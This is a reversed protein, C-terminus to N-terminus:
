SSNSLGLFYCLEHVELMLMEQTKSNSLFPKSSETQVARFPNRLLKWQNNMGHEGFQRFLFFLSGSVKNQHKSFTQLVQINIIAM